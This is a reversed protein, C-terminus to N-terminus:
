LGKRRRWAEGEAVTAEVAGRLEAEVEERTPERGRDARVQAIVELSLNLAALTLAQVLEARTTQEPM